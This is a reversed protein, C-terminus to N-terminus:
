KECVWVCRESEAENFEAGKLDGYVAVPQLGARVILRKLEAPSYARVSESLAEEDPEHKKMEGSLPAQMFRVTKVIRRSKKDYRRHEEVLASGAKRRSHEVLNALTPTRNLFDLVFRAGPKL